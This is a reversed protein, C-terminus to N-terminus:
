IFIFEFGSVQLFMAPKDGWNSSYAATESDERICDKIYQIPDDNEDDFMDTMDVGKLFKDFSIKKRNKMMDQWYKENDTCKRRLLDCQGLYQKKNSKNEVLGERLLKIIMEKM